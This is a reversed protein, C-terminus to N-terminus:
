TGISGSVFNVADSIRISADATLVGASPDASTLNFTLFSGSFRWNTGDSFVIKFLDNTTGQTACQNVVYQHVTDTPTYQLGFTLTGADSLAAAKYEKATSDMNTVDIEGKAFNPGGINTINPILKSVSGSRVYLLTKSYIATSAM